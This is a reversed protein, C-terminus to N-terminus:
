PPHSNMGWSQSAHMRAGEGSGNDFHSSKSSQRRTQRRAPLSKLLCHHSMRMLAAFFATKM